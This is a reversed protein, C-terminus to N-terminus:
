PKGGGMGSKAGSILGMLLQQNANAKAISGAAQANGVGTINSNMTNGYNQSAGMLGSVANQGIGAMQSLRGYRRDRDANFRNYANNYENSAFGQGYQTLAKAFGGGLLNGRAAASRELAKQGEQMRFDYGPDKTFDAQTFDRKFDQDAMQSLASLGQARWPELDQRQQGYLREQLANARDASSRQAEVGDDIAGHGLPDTVFSGVSKVLGGM